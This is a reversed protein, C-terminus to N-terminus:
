VKAGVGTEKTFVSGGDNPWSSTQDERGGRRKDRKERGEKKARPM